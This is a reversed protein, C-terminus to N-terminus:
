QQAGPLVKWWARLMHGMAQGAGFVRIAEELYEAMALGGISTALHAEPDGKRPMAMFGNPPLTEGRRIRRGGELQGHTPKLTVSKDIKYQYLKTKLWLYDNDDLVEIAERMATVVNNLSELRRAKEEAQGLQQRLGLIEVKLDDVGREMGCMPCGAKSGHPEYYEILHQSCAMKTGYASMDQETEAKAAQVARTRQRTAGGSAKRAQKPNLPLRANHDVM